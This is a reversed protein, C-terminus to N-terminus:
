YTDIQNFRITLTAFQYPSASYDYEADANDLLAGPLSGYACEVVARVIADLRGGSAIRYVGREDQESANANGTLSASSDLGVVVRIDSQQDGRVLNSDGNPHVFIVPRGDDLSANYGIADLFVRPPAGAADAVERSQALEAALNEAIDHASASKLSM